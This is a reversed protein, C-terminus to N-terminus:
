IDRYLIKFSNERRSNGRGRRRVAPGQIGSSLPIEGEKKINKWPFDPLEDMPPRPTPRGPPFLLLYAWFKHTRIYILFSCPPPIGGSTGGGGQGGILEGRKKIKREKTEHRQFSPPPPPPPKGRSRKMKKRADGALPFSFNAGRRRRRRREMGVCPFHCPFLFIGVANQKRM